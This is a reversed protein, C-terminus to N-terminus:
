WRPVRVPTRAPGLRAARMAAPACRAAGLCGASFRAQKGAAARPTAPIWRGGGRGGALPLEALQREFARSPATAGATPWPSPWPPRPFIDEEGATWLTSSPGRSRSGPLGQPHGPGPGMDTDTPGTWCPTCGARRTRGALHAAVPDASFAAPRPPGLLRGAGAAPRPLEAVPQQRHGGGPGPDAAPLFAETVAYTGFLNVALNGSSRPGTASARSCRSAPTTSGPNDLSGSGNPPGGSGQAADTVDLPWAAHVREMRTLRPGPPARPTVGRGPV